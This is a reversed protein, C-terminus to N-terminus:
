ESLMIENLKVMAIVEDEKKLGLQNSSDTGIIATLKGALSNITVKTLLEGREIEMIIGQIRNQLSILHNENSGLVVETEKFLIKVPKGMQLYSATEPTEIVISQITVKKPLGITVLSLSGHVKIDTIHGALSNM